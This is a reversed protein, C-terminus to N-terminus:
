VALTHALPIGGILIAGLTLEAYAGYGDVFFNGKPYEGWPTVSVRSFLLYSFPAICGRPAYYLGGSNNLILEWVIGALVTLGGYQALMVCICAWLPHREDTGMSIGYGHYPM